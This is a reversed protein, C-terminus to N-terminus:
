SRASSRPWRERPALGDAGSELRIALGGHLAVLDCFGNDRPLHLVLGHVLGLSRGPAVEHCCVAIRPITVSIM